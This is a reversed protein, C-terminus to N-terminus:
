PQLFYHVQSFAIETKTPNLIPVEMYIQETRSEYLLTSIMSQSKASILQTFDTNDKIIIKVESTVIPQPSINICNPGSASRDTM